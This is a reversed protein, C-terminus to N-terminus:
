ANLLLLRHDRAPSLAPAFLLRLERRILPLFIWLIRELDRLKSRQVTYESSERTKYWSSNKSCISRKFSANLASRSSSSFRMRISCSSISSMFLVRSRSSLNAIHWWTSYRIYEHIVSSASTCCLLARLHFAPTCHAWSTSTYYMLHAWTFSWSGASLGFDICRSILPRIIISKVYMMNKHLNRCCISSLLLCFSFFHLACPVSIWRILAWSCTSFSRTLFQFPETKTFM